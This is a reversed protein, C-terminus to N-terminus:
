KSWRWGHDCLRALVLALVIALPIVILAVIQEPM